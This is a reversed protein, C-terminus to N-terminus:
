GSAQTDRLILKRFDELEGLNLDSVAWFTMGGQTWHVLNYGRLVLAEPAAGGAAGPWVFLNIPHQGHRYVLAVVPRQELYDLRGGILPYGDAALDVVPPAVDLKGNFWPKVTHQDSSAVDTLHNAMLSRVHAAVLEQDLASRAGGRPSLQFLTLSVTLTLACAVAAGSAFWGWAFRRRPPEIVALTRLNSRISRALHQPATHYHAHQRVVSIMARQREYENACAPCGRLHEQLRGVLAADLQDDLYGHVEAVVSECTVDPEVDREM